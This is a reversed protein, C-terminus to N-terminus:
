ALFVCALIVQKMLSALAESCRLKLRPRDTYNGIVEIEDLLEELQEKQRQRKAARAESAACWFLRAERAYLSHRDM